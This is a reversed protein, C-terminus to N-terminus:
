QRLYGTYPELILSVSDGSASVVISQTSGACALGASCTPLGRGNFGIVGTPSIGSGELVGDLSEGYLSAVAPSLTYGTGNLAIQYSLGDGSHQMAREQTYRIAQVLEEADGVATFDSGSRVAVFTSVIGLLVITMVLELLTFGHLRKM